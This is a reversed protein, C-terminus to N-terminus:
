AIIKMSLNRILDGRSVVGIVHNESDIVPLKKFHHHALLRIAEEFDDDASASVIHKSVKHRLIEDVTKNIKSELVAEIKQAEIVFVMIFLDRVSTDKPALYRLIDGDSIMGILKDENDVVPVGGIRHEVMLALIEKVTMDKHVTIVNKIMLDKVEM